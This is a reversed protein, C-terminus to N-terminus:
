DFAGLNKKKKKSLIISHYIKLSQSIFFLKLFLEVKLSFLNIELVYM